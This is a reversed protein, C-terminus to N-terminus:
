SGHHEPLVQREDSVDRTLEVIDEVLEKDSSVFFSSERQMGTMLSSFLSDADWSNWSTNTGDNFHALQSVM